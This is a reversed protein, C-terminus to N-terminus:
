ASVALEAALNAAHGTFVTSLEENALCPQKLVHPYVMATRDVFDGASFAVLYKPPYFGEVHVHLRVLSVKEGAAFTGFHANRTKLELRVKARDMRFLFLRTRDTLFYELCFM